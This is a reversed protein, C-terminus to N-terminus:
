KGICFRSFITTLLEDTVNEGTIEGLASLTARLDTSVADAVLDTEIAQIAEDLAQRARELADRHRQSTVTAAEPANGLAAGSRQYIVTRLMELGAGTLASIRVVAAGPVLSSAEEEGVIRPLDCKNLAIVAVGPAARALSAVDRDNETLPASADVLLVVVGATSLASRSREVGLQEVLDETKSIGATDALVAPVGLLDISEEIVDRTTGAFPTVIARDSQLLANLLSSKGANPRGVLAIRVGIRHLKGAHATALLVALQTQARRLPALLSERSPVPVDDEAFDITAELHAYVAMVDQRITSVRRSLEGGLQRVALSLGTPTRAQVADAVAEAQALDLKGALFARLTMEGREAQRAGAAIALRLTESVSVTGGHGSIEVVDQGTYSRPGRMFSLLAEDTV